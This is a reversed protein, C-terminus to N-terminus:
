EFSILSRLPSSCSPGLRCCLGLGTFMTSASAILILNKRETLQAFNAIFSGELRYWSSSLTYHSDINSRLLREFMSDFDNAYASRGSEWKGAFDIEHLVVRISKLQSAERAPHVRIQFWLQQQRRKSSVSAFQVPFAEHSCKFTFRALWCFSSM